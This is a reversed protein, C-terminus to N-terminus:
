LFYRFPSKAWTNETNIVYVNIQLIEKAIRTQSADFTQTKIAEGYYRINVNVFIGIDLM